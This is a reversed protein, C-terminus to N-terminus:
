YFLNVNIAKSKCATIVEPKSSLEILIQIPNYDKLAVSFGDIKYLKRHNEVAELLEKIHPYRFTAIMEKHNIWYKGGDAKVRFSWPDKQKEKQRVFEEIPLLLHIDKKLDISLQSALELLHADRM